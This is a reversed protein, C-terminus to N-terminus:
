KKVYKEYNKIGMSSFAQRVKEQDGITLRGDSTKEIIGKGILVAVLHSKQSEDFKNYLEEWQVVLNKENESIYATAADNIKDKILKNLDM